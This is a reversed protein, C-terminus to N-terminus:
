RSVAGRRPGGRDSGLLFTRKVAWRFHGPYNHTSHTMPQRKIHPNGNVHPNVNRNPPPPPPQPTDPPPPPLEPYADLGDLLYVLIDQHTGKAARTAKTKVRARLPEVLPTPAHCAIVTGQHYVTWSGDLHQRVDVRAKAYSRHRPGPPIHLVLDGLTVTNDAAVVRTYRLALIKRRDLRGLRRYASGATRPLRGFRRNFEDLWLEDLYENAPEITTIGRHALEAVLRDQAVGFFREIRGKGQASRAFIPRIGLEELAAGVQTPDQRGALQEALSWHGDNRRLASHRDQYISHPIGAGRLVGDLLQLYAVTTEAPTFFAAECRGTADDVAAMLAVKPGDPGFWRHVSGDWQLMLGRVPVPDRRRRHQRPRRHRKPAVGAGRLLRRLTERGIRVGERETLAEHLHTDNFGTYSSRVLGVIREREAQELRNAPPRGRLRHALAAPGGAELRRRLRRAQRVSIELREAAARLSLHGEEVLGLIRVRGLERPRLAFIETM